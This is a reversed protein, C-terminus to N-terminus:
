PNPQEPQVLRVHFGLQLELLRKANGRFRLEIEDQSFCTGDKPATEPLDQFAQIWPKM